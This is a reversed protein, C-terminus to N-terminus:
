TYFTKSRVERQTILQSANYQAVVSKLTEHIISPLVREDYNEGLTRYITPLQDPVPRTLVRLGIKVRIEMESLVTNTPEPIHLELKIQKENNKKKQLKVGVFVYCVKTSMRDSPFGGWDADFFFKQKDKVGFIRNFVIARHGGEVNYLSNAVGYIDLGSIVSLILTSAAGGGPVKPVKVNNFDM